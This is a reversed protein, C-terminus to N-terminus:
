ESHHQDVLRHYATGVIMHLYPVTWVAIVASAISGLIKVYALPCLFALAAPLMTVFAVAYYAIMLVIMRLLHPKVVSYSHRIAAIAKKNQDAVLPVTFLFFALLVVSSLASIVYFFFFGMQSGTVHFAYGIYQFVGTVVLVILAVLILAIATQFWYKFYHFGSNADVTENRARKIATMFIGSVFPATVAYIAIAAISQFFFNVIPSHVFDPHAGFFVFGLIMAVIFMVGFGVGLTVGSIAWLAAKAGHVSKWADHLTGRVSFKNELLLQSM